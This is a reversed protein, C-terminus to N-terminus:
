SSIFSSMPLTMLRRNSSLTINSTAMAKDTRRPKTNSPLLTHM